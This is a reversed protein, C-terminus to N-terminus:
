TATSSARAERARLRQLKAEADVWDVDVEDTSFYLLWKNRLNKLLKDRQGRPIGGDFLLSLYGLHIQVPRSRGPISCNTVVKASLRRDSHSPKVRLLVRVTRM